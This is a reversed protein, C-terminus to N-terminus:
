KASFFSNTGGRDNLVLLERQQKCVQPIKAEPRGWPSGGGFLGSMGWGAIGDGAWSQRYQQSPSLPSQDELNSRPSLGTSSDESVPFHAGSHPWSTRLGRSVKCLARPCGWLRGSSGRAHCLLNGRALCLGHLWLFFCPEGCMCVGSPGAGRRGRPGTRTRVRSWQRWGRRLPAGGGGRWETKFGCCVSSSKFIVIKVTGM